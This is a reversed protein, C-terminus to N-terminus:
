KLSRDYDIIGVYRTQSLDCTTVRFCQSDFQPSAESSQPWEYQPNWTVVLEGERTKVIHRNRLIVIALIIIVVSVTGLIGRLVRASVGADEESYIYFYEEVTYNGVGALSVAQLQLSYNGPKLHKLEYYEKGIGNGSPPICEIDPKLNTNGIRQYKINYALIIGNPNSPTTWEVRVISGYTQNSTVHIGISNSSVDDAKEHNNILCIHFKHLSKGKPKTKGVALVSLSCLQMEPHMKDREHCATILVKYATFHQLERFEHMLHSGSVYVTTGFIYTFDKKMEKKFLYPPPNSTSNCEVNGCPDPNPVLLMRAAAMSATRQVRMPVWNELRSKICDSVAQTPPFLHQLQLLHRCGTPSPLICDTTDHSSQTMGLRRPSRLDFDKAPKHGRRGPEHIDEKAMKDEWTVQLFHTCAYVSVPLLLLHNSSATFGFEHTLDHICESRMDITLHTRM